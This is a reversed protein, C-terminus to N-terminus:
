VVIRLAYLMDVDKEQNKLLRILSLLKAVSGLHNESASGDVVAHTVVRCV